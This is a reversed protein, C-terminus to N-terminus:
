PASVRADGRPDVILASTAVCRGQFIRRASAPRFGSFMLRSGRRGHRERDATENSGAEAPERKGTQRARLSFSFM